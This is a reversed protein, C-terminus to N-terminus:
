GSLRVPNVIDAYLLLASMGILVAAVGYALPLAKAVDVPKPKPGGTV